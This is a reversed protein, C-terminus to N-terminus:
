INKNHLNYEKLKQRILELTEEVRPKIFSNVLSRNIQNFKNNESGIISVDILEHEDSPNSFVSGYLTKLREASEITTSVGRALDNTINKGGINISDIFILKKNDFVSVSTSSAGLDICITGLIKDDFSLTALSSSLPSPVFNEIHINLNDFVTSINKIFNEKIAFKYFNVKLNNGFMGRPDNVISNKDLEYDLISNHIVNYNDIKELFDSQNIAKKIHLESIKENILKIESKSYLSISDVAPVNLNISLIETQSEKSAELIIEKIENKIKELDTIISKKISNTPYNVFSLIKKSNNNRIDCVACTIKSNGIDLGVRIM